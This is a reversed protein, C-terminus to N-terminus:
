KEGLDVRTLLQLPHNITLQAGSAVLEQEPRFGWLAGVPFMGAAVATYMDTDTDGLFLLEGPALELASAIKRAGGPDPKVPCSAQAGLVKAFPHRGFFYAVTEQVFIEPKNSLIAMKVRRKALEVLLEEIGPYPKTKEFWRRGYEQRMMAVCRGVMQSDRCGDPLVRRALVEIGDGVFYRYETELHPPFGFRQLVANMSNALDALSDLLTGDLDFIVGLFGKELM